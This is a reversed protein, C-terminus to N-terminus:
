AQRFVAKVPMKKLFAYHLKFQSLLVIYSNTLFKQKERFILHEEKFFFIVPTYKFTFKKESVLALKGEFLLLDKMARKSDKKSVGSLSTIISMYKWVEKLVQPLCCFDTVEFVSSFLRTTNTPLIERLLGFSFSLRCHMASM